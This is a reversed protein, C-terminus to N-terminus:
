FRARVTGPWHLMEMAQIMNSIRDNGARGGLPAVPFGTRRFYLLIPVAAATSPGRTSAEGRGLIVTQALPVLTDSTQNSNRRAATRGRRPRRHRVLHIHVM